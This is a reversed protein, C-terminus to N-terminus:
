KKTQRLQSFKPWIPNTKKMYAAYAPEHKKRNEIPPVGSIFRILFLLVIPGIFGVWGYSAGCAILGIGFWQTIEGLYNPHRSARWLGTDLVRGKNSPDALFMKLQRDATAEIIFGKLWVVTGIVAWFLWGDNVPNAAFMVPLSILWILLGQLLFISVYARLWYTKTNWKKAIEVYRPDDEKSKFVRTALHDTIRIAWIDVLITILILRPELFLGATLSAVIVFGVGWGADVTALQKRRYAVVFVLSMYMLVALANWLLLWPNVIDMCRNYNAM